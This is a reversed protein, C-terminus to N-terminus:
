PSCPITYPMKCLPCPKKQYIWKQICNEHFLHKCGKWTVVSQNPVFNELCVSCVEKEAFSRRYNQPNFKEAKIETMEIYVESAQYYGHYGEFDGPFREMDQFFSPCCYEIACSIAWTLTIFVIGLSILMGPFVLWGYVIMDLVVITLNANCEPFVGNKFQDIGYLFWGMNVPFFVVLYLFGLIVKFASSTLWKMLSILIALVLFGLGFSSFTATWYTSNFKCSEDQSKGQVTLGFLFLLALGATFWTIKQAKASALEFIDFELQSYSNNSMNQLNCAVILNTLLRFLLILLLLNTLFSVASLYVSETLHDKDHKQIYPAIQSASAYTGSLFLGVGSLFFGWSKKRNQSLEADLLFAAAIFPIDISLSISTILTWYNTITSEPGTIIMLVPWNITLVFLASIIGLAFAESM